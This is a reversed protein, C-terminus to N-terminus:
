RSTRSAAPPASPRPSPSSRISTYSPGPRDVEIRSAEFAPNAAIALRVM